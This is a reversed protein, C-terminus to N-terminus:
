LPRSWLDLDFDSSTSKGSGIKQAFCNGDDDDDDNNDYCMGPTPTLWTFESEGILVMRLSKRTPIQTEPNIIFSTFM